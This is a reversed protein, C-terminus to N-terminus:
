YSLVPISVGSTYWNNQWSCLQTAVHPLSLRQFCRLTFGGELHSKGNSLLLIGQLRRPLYTLLPLKTVSSASQYQDISSKVLLSTLLLYRTKHSQYSRVSPRTILALLACRNGYRVCFNLEKAGLTTRLHSLLVDSPWLYIRTYNLPLVEAKWAALTPEIGM